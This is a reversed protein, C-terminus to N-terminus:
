LMGWGGPLISPWIGAMAMHLVRSMAAHPVAPEEPARTPMPAKEESAQEAPPAEATTAATTTTEEDEDPPALLDEPGKMFIVTVYLYGDESYATGVGVYNFDGLINARHPSSAMFAEHLQSVDAGVGVNEGLAWWGSTVGGLNSSHFIEGAEVMDNTHRRADDTLDWYVQLENLGSGSRASNIRSVFGSVESAGHAPLAAAAFAVAAAVTLVVVRRFM